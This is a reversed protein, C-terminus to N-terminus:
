YKSTDDGFSREIDVYLSNFYDEAYVVRDQKNGNLMLFFQETTKSLTTEDKCNGLRAFHGAHLPKLLHSGILKRVQISSAEM